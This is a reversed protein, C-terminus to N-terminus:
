SRESSKCQILRLSNLVHQGHVVDIVAIDVYPEGLPLKIWPTIVADKEDESFLKFRATNITGYPYHGAQWKARITMTGNIVPVKGFLWDFPDNETGSRDSMTFALLICRAHVGGPDGQIQAKIVLEMCGKDGKLVWNKCMQIFGEGNLLVATQSFVWSSLLYWIEQQEEESDGGWDIGGGGGGGDGGIGGSGWTSQTSVQRKYVDSAASSVGQTSRPPRRIMLFFFFLSFKHVM